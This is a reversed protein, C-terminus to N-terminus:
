DLWRDLGEERCRQVLEKVREAESRPCVLTADPTHVVILDEVGVLGVLHAPDDNWGICDAADVSVLRGTAVNGQPDAERHRAVAAWSGVDDWDFGAEVVAIETAKEFVGYDISIRQMARFERDLTAAAETTGLAAGVRRVPM